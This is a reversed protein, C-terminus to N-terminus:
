LVMTLQLNILVVDIGYTCTCTCTCTCQVIDHMYHKGSKKTVAVFNETELLLSVCGLTAGTDVQLFLVCTYM